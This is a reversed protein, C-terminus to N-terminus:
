EPQSIRAGALRGGLYATPLYALLFDAAIFWAPGGCSLVMTVGGILFVVGIGIAFMMRRSTALRAAVFAGALTGVAHALFPFIFNSPAFLKMSERLGDMTSVDAGAPLPIVSTGIQLLGVNVVGGVVFGAIAALVNRGIPNM